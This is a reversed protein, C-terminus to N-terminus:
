SGRPCVSLPRYTVGLLAADEPEGGHVLFPGLLARANEDMVLPAWAKSRLKVADLFGAAWDAVITVGNPDSMFIPDLEPPIAALNGVIENYRGIITGFIAQMEDDSDFKPDEDGFVVPLWISPPIAEPGAVLGTLFGDIDSVGMSNDPANDSLLYADLREIDVPGDLPLSEAM